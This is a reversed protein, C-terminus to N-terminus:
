GLAEGRSDNSTKLGFLIRKCSSSGTAPLLGAGPWRSPRCCNNAASEVTLRGCQFRGDSRKASKIGSLFPAAILDSQPQGSPITMNRSSRDM